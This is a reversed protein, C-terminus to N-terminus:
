RAARGRALTARGLTTMALLSAKREDTPPKPATDNPLAGAATTAILEATLSHPTRSTVMAEIQSVRSVAIPRVSDDESAQIYADYLAQRQSPMAQRARVAGDAFAAAQAQRAQTQQEALQSELESLRDAFPNPVVRATSGAMLDASALAENPALARPEISPPQDGEDPAGKGSIWAWFGPKSDAM